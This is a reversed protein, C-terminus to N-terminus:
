KIPTLLSIRQARQGLVSVDVDQFKQYNVKVGDDLDLSIRMAALHGLAQDYLRAEAEQKQLRDQRRTARGKEAGPAGGALISGCDEIGSQYLAQMKHLYDVRLRGLTDPEYRHLYFLARFGAQKGSDCQWYIPRKKYTRLHDAYFDNLYYSRIVERSTDGKGKLARAIFALNEELTERGYVKQVFEATREVIDDEFYAEDTIPIIGDRDPLFLGLDPDYFDRGPAAAEIRARIAGEDWEGGAYLLGDVYPSYRGLMCGVMYSLLSVIEDRMSLVYPMKREEADPEDIIRYVTVDRDAVEPSLEGQLGYIDIFIRNLEEENAKLQNFRDLCEQQHERYKDAIFRPM